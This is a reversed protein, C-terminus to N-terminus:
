ALDQNREALDKSIDTFPADEGPPPTAPSRAPPTAAQGCAVVGAALAVWARRTEVRPLM